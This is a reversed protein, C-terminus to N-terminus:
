GNSAKNMIISIEKNLTAYENAPFIYASTTLLTVSRKSYLSTLNQTKQKNLALLIANKLADYCKETNGLAIFKNDVNKLIVREKEVAFHKCKNLFDQKESIKCGVKSVKDVKVCLISFVTNLFQSINGEAKNLNGGIYRAWIGVCDRNPILTALEKFLNVLSKQNFTKESGVFDLQGTELNATIGFHNLFHSLLLKTEYQYSIIGDNYLKFTDTARLINEPTFLLSLLSLGKLTKRKEEGYFKAAVDITVDNQNEMQCATMIERKIQSFENKVM